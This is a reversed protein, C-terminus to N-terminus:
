GSGPPTGRSTSLGGSRDSRTRPKIELATSVAERLTSASDGSRTKTGVCASVGLWCTPPDSRHFKPRLMASDPRSAYWQQSSACSISSEPPRLLTKSQVFDGLCHWWLITVAQSEKTLVARDNLRHLFVMCTPPSVAQLVIISVPSCPCNLPCHVQKRHGTV